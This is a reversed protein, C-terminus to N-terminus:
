ILEATLDLACQHALGRGAEAGRCAPLKGPDLFVLVSPGAGSLAAGLIGEKRETGSAGAAASMLRATLSTFATKWPRACCDPRGQTFGGAAANFEPYEGSCGSALIARSSGRAGRGDFRSSRSRWCCRGSGKRRPHMAVQAEAEGSMRAVTLGGMWCASANDPHHERRSAEGIIQADTWRLRRFTRGPCHRGSAGGGFIRLRKRDSHRECHRLSLPVVKRGASRLVERYTNLILHNELNGCIDEDRGTAM